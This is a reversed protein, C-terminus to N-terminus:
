QRVTVQAPAIPGNLRLRLTHLVGMADCPRTDDPTVTVSVVIGAGAGEIRIDVVKDCSGGTWPVDVTNPQGPVAAVGGGAVADDPDFAIDQVKGSGDSVNTTSTMGDGLDVTMTWARPGAVSSVIQCASLTTAVVLLAVLTLLRRVPM